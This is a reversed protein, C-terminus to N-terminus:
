DDKKLEFDVTIREVSIFPIVMVNIMGNEIDELTNNTEDCIIKYNDSLFCQRIEELQKRQEETM